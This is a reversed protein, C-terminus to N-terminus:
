KGAQAVREELLAGVIASLDEYSHYGVAKLRVTGTRDIFLTTPFGEFNPVHKQTKEDGILCPYNMHNEKVFKRIIKAAEEGTVREYNIGVIALGAPGDKKLLEVFHPIELRCPPCWTGWIDVILVKGAFDKKSVTKGDVSTLTFDFPFPKNQALLQQAHERAAKALLDGFAQKFAPLDQLSKLDADTTLKDVQSFGSAFADKLAALAQDSHGAVAEACAENYLVESLLTKEQDNLQPYATRLQKGYNAAKLLWVSASKTDSGQAVMNGQGECVSCLLFLAERNKPDIKIAKELSQAADVFNRGQEALKAQALLDAVSEGSAETSKATASPKSSVQTKEERGCGILLTAVVLFGIVQKRM